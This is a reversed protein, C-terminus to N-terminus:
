KEHFDGMLPMCYRIHFDVPCGLHEDSSTGVGTLEMKRIMAYRFSDSGGIPLEWGLTSKDKMRGGKQNNSM